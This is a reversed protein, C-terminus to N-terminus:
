SRYRILGLEISIDCTNAISESYGRIKLVPSQLDISNSIISVRKLILTLAFLYIFLYIFLSIINNNHIV